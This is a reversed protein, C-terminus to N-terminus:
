QPGGFRFEVVETSETGTEWRWKKLADVAAEILVPNGGVARTSKVTGTTSVTVQIKVTGSLNARRALDPYAPQVKVKIKRGSDTDQGAVWAPQILGVAMALLGLTLWRTKVTRFM